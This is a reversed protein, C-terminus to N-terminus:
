RIAEVAPQRNRGPLTSRTGWHREIAEELAYDKAWRVLQAQNNRTPAIRLSIAAHGEIENVPVLHCRDTDPAYIVLADVENASYTTREYGHPTHRSTICRATLLDGV